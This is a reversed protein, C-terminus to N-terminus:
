CSTALNARLLSAVADAAESATLRDERRGGQRGRDLDQEARRYLRRVGGAFEAEIESGLGNITKQMEATALGENMAKNLKAIIEPPTGAPAVLGYFTNAEAGPVGAEAMTPMDPLLPTRTKNQGGLARM